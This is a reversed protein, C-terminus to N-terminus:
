HRHYDRGGPDEQGVSHALHPLLDPSLLPGSIPVPIFLPPPELLHIGPDM